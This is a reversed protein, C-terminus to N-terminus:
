EPLSFWFVSGGEPNPRYGIKGGHGEVIKSIISLGLGTSKEGGTPKNGTFFPTFLFIQSELPVGIGNDAIETIISNGKRFVSISVKSAPM